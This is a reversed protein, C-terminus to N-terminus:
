GWRLKFAAAERLTYFFIMEDRPETEYWYDGFNEECWEAAIQFHEMAAALNHDTYFGLPEGEHLVVAEFAAVYPPGNEPVAREVFTVSM